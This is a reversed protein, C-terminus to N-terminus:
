KSGGQGQTSLRNELERVRTELTLIMELHDTFEKELLSNTGKKKQESAELNKLRRLIPTLLDGLYKHVAEAMKEYDFQM